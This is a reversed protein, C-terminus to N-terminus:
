LYVLGVLVQNGFKRADLTLQQETGDMNLTLGVVIYNKNKSINKSIGKIIYWYVSKNDPKKVNIYKLNIPNIYTTSVYTIKKHYQNQKNFQHIYFTFLAVREYRHM